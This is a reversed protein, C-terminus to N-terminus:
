PSWLTSIGAVGGLLCGVALLAPPGFGQAVGRGALVGLLTGSLLLLWALTKRPKM